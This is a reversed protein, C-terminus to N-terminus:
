KESNLQRLSSFYHNGLFPRSWSVVQWLYRQFYDYTEKPLEVHKEIGLTYVKFIQLFHKLFASYMLMPLGLM